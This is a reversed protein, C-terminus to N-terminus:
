FINEYLLSFGLYRKNHGFITLVHDSKLHSYYVKHLVDNLPLHIWAYIFPTWKSSQWVFTSSLLTYTFLKEYCHQQM